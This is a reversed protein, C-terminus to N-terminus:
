ATTSDAVNKEIQIQPVKPAEIVVKELPAMVLAEGTIVPKGLQNTVQCDIVVRNKEADITKVTAKATLSDGIKVPRLFSLQQSLYITGPGPLQTGLLASVLAGGYMGHAIPEKFPTSAAYEADLHAPNIDGSVAAFLQIDQQTITKELSASLGEHLQDLPINELSNM